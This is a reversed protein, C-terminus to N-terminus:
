LPTARLLVVFHQKSVSATTSGGLLMPAGDAVRNSNTANLSRTLGTIMIAEGPMLRVDTGDSVSDTQPVQVTQQLSGTGSTFNALSLLSSFKFAYKLLISNDPQLIPLVSYIDGTTVTATKLGPAGAAGSASALGPITESVYGQTATNSQVKLVGNMTTLSVPKHQVSKGTQALANFIATSNMGQGNLVTYTLNGASAPTLSAPSGVQINFDRNMAQFVLNWNIGQNDADTETISYIDMTVNVMRRLLKNQEDLYDRVQAQVEKPATVVVTGTQTNPVVTGTGVMATITTVISSFADLQGKTTFTGSSQLGNTAGTQGATGSTTGGTSTDFSQAGVMGAVAHTQTINRMIVVAGDRYEWSLSLANTLHELFDRLRGNWRMAVGNVSMAEMSAVANASVVAGAGPNALGASSPLASGSAPMGATTPVGTPLAASPTTTARASNNLTSAYVDSRVRVPIGTIKTLRTALVALPVRADGFDLVYSENFLAPLADEKTTPVFAGGIWPSNAFRVVQPAKAKEARAGLDAASGKVGQAKLPPVIHEIPANAHAEDITQALRTSTCGTAGLALLLTASVHFAFRPQLTHKM